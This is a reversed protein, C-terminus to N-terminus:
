TQEFSKPGFGLQEHLKKNDPNGKMLNQIPLQSKGKRQYLYILDVM